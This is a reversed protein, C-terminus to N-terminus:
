TGLGPYVIKPLEIFYCFMAGKAHYRREPNRAGFSM